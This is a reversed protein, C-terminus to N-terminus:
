ITNELNEEMSKEVFGEAEPSELKPNEKIDEIDFKGALQKLRKSIHLHAENSKEFPNISIINGIFYELFIIFTLCTSEKTSEKLSLFIENEPSELKPNEKIDEIDLKGALQKLRKSIYLHIENSKEFPNISINNRTYDEFSIILTLCVSEQLSFFIENDHKKSKEPNKIGEGSKIKAYASQPIFINYEDYILKITEKINNENNIDVKMIIGIAINLRQQTDKHREEISINTPNNGIMIPFNINDVTYM